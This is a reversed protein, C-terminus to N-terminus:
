RPVAISQVCFTGGFPRTVFGLGARRCTAADVMMDYGILCAILIVIALLTKDGRTMM